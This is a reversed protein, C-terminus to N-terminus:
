TGLGHLKIIFSGNSGKLVVYHEAIFASLNRIDADLISSFLHLKRSSTM